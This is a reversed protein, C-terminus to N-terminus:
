WIKIYKRPYTGYWLVMEGTRLKDIRPSILFEILVLATLVTLAIEGM